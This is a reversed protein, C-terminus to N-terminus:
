QASRDAIAAQSIIARGTSYDVASSVLYVDVPLALVCLLVTTISLTAALTSLPHSEVPDSLAKILIFSISFAIVFVVALVIWAAAAHAVM